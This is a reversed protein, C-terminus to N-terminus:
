LTLGIVIGDNKHNVIIRINTLAQPREELRDVQLTSGVCGGRFEKPALQGILDTAQYQVDSQWSQAPEIKLGLEGFHVNINWDNKNGAIAIDWHRYLGHLGTRNLKKGLRNPLLVKQISDSFREIAVALPSFGILLYVLQTASVMRETPTFLLHHAQDGGSQHVFLNCCFNSNDLDGYLNVPVVDHLLKARFRESIQHSHRIGKPKRM